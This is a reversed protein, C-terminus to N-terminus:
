VIDASYVKIIEKNDKELVLVGDMDLDKFIGKIKKEGDDVTIEKEFNYSYKLWLKRIVNFGNELMDKSLDEFNESFKIIIENKNLLFGEDKLSTPQFTSNKIVPTKDVNVGIGIVLSDKDKELLVGCFKKNNILIDNPWKVKLDVEGHVIDKLTKLMAYSSLFSYGSYNYGVNEAKIKLAMFINNSKESIWKRDSKGRGKTQSNAIILTNPLYEKIVDM